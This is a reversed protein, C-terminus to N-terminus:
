PRRKRSWAAMGAVSDDMLFGRWRSFLKQGVASLLSLGALGLLGASGCIFQQVPGRESLPKATGDDYEKLGM